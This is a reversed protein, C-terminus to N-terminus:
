RKVIQRKQYVWVTTYSDGSDLKPINEDGWSSVGKCMLLWKKGRRVAGTLQQDVETEISRGTTCM